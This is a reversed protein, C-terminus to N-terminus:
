FIEDGLKYDITHTSLEIKNLYSLVHNAYSEDSM